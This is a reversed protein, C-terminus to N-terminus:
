PTILTHPAPSMYRETADEMALELFDSQAPTLIPRHVIGFGISPMGILMVNHMRPYATSAHLLTTLLICSGEQVSSMLSEDLPETVIRASPSDIHILRRIISAHSDPVSDHIVIEEGDLESASTVYCAGLKHDHAAVLCYDDWMLLTFAVRHGGMNTQRDMRVFDVDGAEVAEIQDQVSAGISVFSLEVEPHKREFESIIKEYYLSDSLSSAGITLRREEQEAIDRARMVARECCERAENMGELFCRGAPTLSIGASKRVFLQIGLEKELKAMHAAFDPQTKHPKRATVSFSGKQAVALFEGIVDSLFM